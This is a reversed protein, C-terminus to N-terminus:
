NKIFSAYCVDNGHVLRFRYIGAPLNATAISVTNTGVFGQQVKQAVLMNMSNYVYAYLTTPQALTILTNAYASAPNPYVQLNCSTTFPMQQTIHITKCLEKVCGGAYTTRVCVNYYGSDLFVYTPNNLHITATGTGATAPSKTITWLQDAIVTNSTAVFQIRNPVLPDRVDNINLTISGCNTTSSVYITKCTTSACNNNRFATLCVTYYGIAAFKHTATVATQSGTGDGFTWTYQLDNSINVPTFSIINNNTASRVFGFISQTSCAPTPETIKVSDCRYSVCTGSQLRLCVYYTGPLNYTHTASYTTASSGDGFYWTPTANNPTANSTNSFYITKYNSTSVTRTFNAKIDCVQQVNITYCKESVCNTFLGNPNRKIIRLCVTYTGPQSYGHIPNLQSSSTGDGFTWRISDTTALPTTTNNFHYTYLNPAQSDRYNTFNAVLTCPPTPSAIVVVKCFYNACPTSGAITIRKIILCVNYTGAATYTHNPNLDHSVTGDGFNWTISDTSNFGTSLNNFHVTNPPLSETTFYAKINCPYVVPPVTISYCKESVCNTLPTGATSRKIVRVCVNYTGPTTYVHVPNYQNSSSGDGFTWRISDTSSGGVSTNTFHYNNISIGTSDRFWIFNATLYCPPTPLTVRVQKCSYQVCSTTGVIIPKKIVLCVNFNGATTYTHTPSVDHSVSGDGFNWTISDATNYGSSQNNFHFVNVKLSDAIFYVQLNCPAPPPVVTVTHCVESVCPASTAANPSKKVRLCVNYTGANAYQHTPNADYSVSGDGFTWRISDGSAFGVSSNNFYVKMSANSQSIFAASLNCATQGITLQKVLSDICVILGTSNHRVVIHTVSYVGVAYTHNPSFVNSPVSADGFRWYQQVYASDTTPAPNFKVTSGSLFQFTFDPNCGTTNTQAYSKFFLLASFLVLTTLLKKM